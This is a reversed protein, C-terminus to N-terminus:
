APRIAFLREGFEVPQANEPYIRVLVGSVDSEIENMLKMAEVICLVQGKQVHDGAKVYPPAEPSPAAYYTGVIPSTVFSLGDEEAPEAAPQGPQRAPEGGGLAPNAPAFQGAAALHPPLLSAGFRPDPEPPCPVGDIRVKTGDKEVEVGGVRTESVLRILECLEAFTFM